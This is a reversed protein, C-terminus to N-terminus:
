RPTWAGRAGGGRGPASAGDDHRLVVCRDARVAGAPVHPELWGLLGPTPFIYGVVDAQGSEAPM